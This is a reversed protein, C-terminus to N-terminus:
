LNMRTKRSAPQGSRRRAKIQDEKWQQAYVRRWRLLEDPTLRSISRGAMSMSSQDKTAKNALLADIADLVKKSNPLKSENFEATEFNEEVECYGRAVTHREGGNTVWAQWSYDGPRLSATLSPLTNVEYRGSSGDATFTVNGNAGIFKYNLTWDQAAGHTTAPRSWQWSDGAVLYQPEFERVGM